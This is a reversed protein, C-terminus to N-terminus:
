FQLKTESIIRHRIRILEKFIIRNTSINTAMDGENGNGHESKLLNYGQQTPQSFRM